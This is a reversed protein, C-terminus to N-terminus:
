SSVPINYFAWYSLFREDVLSSLSIKRPAVRM